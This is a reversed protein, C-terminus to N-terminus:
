GNDDGEKWLSGLAAAIKRLDRSSSKFMVADRHNEAVNAFMSLVEEMWPEFPGVKDGSIYLKLWERHQPDDKHAGHIRERGRQVRDSM